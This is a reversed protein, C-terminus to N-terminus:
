ARPRRRRAPRTRASSHHIANGFLNKIVGPTEVDFGPPKAGADTSPAQVKLDPAEVADLNASSIESFSPETPKQKGDVITEPDMPTMVGEQQRAAVEPAGPM